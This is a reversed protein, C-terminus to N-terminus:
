LVPFIHTFSISLVLRPALRFSPPESSGGAHQMTREQCSEDVWALERRKKLRGLNWTGPAGKSTIISCCLPHSKVSTRTGLGTQWSWSRSTNSLLGM